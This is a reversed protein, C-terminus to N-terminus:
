LIVPCHLNNFFHKDSIQPVSFSDRRSRNGSTPQSQLSMCMCVSISLYICINKQKYVTIKMINISGVYVSTDHTYPLCGDTRGDLCVHM